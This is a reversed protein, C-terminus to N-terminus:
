SDEETSLEATKFRSVLGRLADEGERDVEERLYFKKIRNAAFTGQLRLSHLEKL